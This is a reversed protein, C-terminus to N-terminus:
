GDGDEIVKKINPLEYSSSKLLKGDARKECGGSFKTMNSRHVANFVRDLPIGYVVATGCAVYIIDALEKAIGEPDDDEEAELYEEWEEKLLTIRLEKHRERIYDNFTSPMIDGLMRHFERLKDMATKM